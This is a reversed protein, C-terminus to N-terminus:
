VPIIQPLKISQTQELQYAAQLLEMDQFHPAVLQIGVPLGNETYGMNLTVAPHGSINFPGTYMMEDLEESGIVPDEAPAEFAVTPTMILDVQNFLDSVSEKYWNLHELSNIYDVARHQMGLEIQKYTTETYDDKRDFWKQHIHAAEPLLVNLILEETRDWDQIQIEVLDWGLLRMQVLTSDYIKRVDVKLKKLMENPLIGVRKNKTDAGFKEFNLASIKGVVSYRDKPDYGAIVDLVVAADIVTRTIPGVHDLSWSLPFVGYTSVLGRTPKLGVTGCYAAPIRISGGTDTGLSFYGIGSAVAAASGSSSGGSTKTIDWPNNTKGFDPHVVGYAFELMNTKGVLIAHTQSLKNLVTASYEPKNDKLIRSGCTTLENMEFFLDKSTYPIGALINLAENNLFQREVIHAQKIAAQERVEIFANLMPELHKQREFLLKTVHVPSVEKQRYLKAIEVLSIDLLKNM